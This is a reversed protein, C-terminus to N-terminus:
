NRRLVIKYEREHQKARWLKVPPLGAKERRNLVSEILALVRDDARCGLILGSLASPRFSLYRGAQEMVIIRTEGEYSWCPYKRLLMTLLSDEFGDLWNVTPYDPKYDVPTANILTGLDALRDFQLCVGAHTTAYHSWMLISRPDDAFCIVGVTKRHAEQSARLVKILEDDPVRMYQHVQEDLEHEAVGNNRLYNVFRARRQDPTGQVLMCAALDFPDNFEAPSSLRLLSRVMIDHLNEVSRPAFHSGDNKAPDVPTLSRYKYLFRSLKRDTVLRRFVIRRQLDPLANVEAVWPDMEPNPLLKALQYTM